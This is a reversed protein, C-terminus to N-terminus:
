RAEDGKTAVAHSVSNEKKRKTASCAFQQPLHSANRSTPSLYSLEELLLPTETHSKRVVKATEVLGKLELEDAGALAKSEPAKHSEMTLVTKLMTIVKAYKAKLVKVLSQLGTTTVARETPRAAPPTSANSRTSQTMPKM